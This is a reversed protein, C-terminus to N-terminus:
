GKLLSLDEDDNQASIGQVFKIMPPIIHKGSMKWKLVAIQSHRTVRTNFLLDVSFSVLHKSTFGSYAFISIKEPKQNQSILTVETQKLYRLPKATSNGGDTLGPSLLLALFILWTLHTKCSIEPIFKV